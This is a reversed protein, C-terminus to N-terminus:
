LGGILTASLDFLWSLHHWSVTSVIHVVLLHSSWCHRLCILFQGNQHKLESVKKKKTKKRRKPLQVAELMDSQVEINTYRQNLASPSGEFSTVSWGCTVASLCPVLVSVWLLRPLSKFHCGFLTVLSKKHRLFRFLDAASPILCLNSPTSAM